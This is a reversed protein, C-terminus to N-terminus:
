APSLRILPQPSFRVIERGARTVQLGFSEAQYSNEKELVEVEVYKDFSDYVNKCGRVDLQLDLFAEKRESKYDVNICDIFSLQHGEFLHQITGEVATGQMLLRAVLPICSCVPNGSPLTRSM